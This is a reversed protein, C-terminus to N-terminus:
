LNFEPVDELAFDRSLDTGPASDPPFLTQAQADFHKEFDVQLDSANMAPTQALLQSIEESLEPHAQYPTMVPAQPFPAADVAESFPQSWGETTGPSLVPLETVKAGSANSARTTQVAEVAESLKQPASKRRKAGKASTAEADVEARPEHTAAEGSAGVGDTREGIKGNKRMWEYQRELVANFRIIQSKLRVMMHYAKFFEPNSKELQSWVLRTFTPEIKATEELHKVIEEKSMYLRLSRELLNQVMAVDHASVKGGGWPAGDGGGGANSRGSAAAGKGMEREREGVARADVGSAARADVGSARVAERASAERARRRGGDDAAGRVDLRGTPYKKVRRNMYRVYLAYQVVKWDM